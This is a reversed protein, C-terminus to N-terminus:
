RSQVPLTATRTMVIKQLADITLKSVLEEDLNLTSYDYDENSLILKDPSVLDFLNEPINSFSVWAISKQNEAIGGIDIAKSIQRQATLYLLVETSRDKAYNYKEAHSRDHLLLSHSKIPYKPIREVANDYTKKAIPISTIPAFRADLKTLTTGTKPIKDLQHHIM